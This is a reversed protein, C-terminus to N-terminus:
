FYIFRSFVFVFITSLLTSLWLPATVAAAGRSTTRSTRESSPGTFSRQSADLLRCLMVSTQPGMHGTVQGPPGCAALGHARASASVAQGTRARERAGGGGRLVRGGRGQWDEDLHVGARSVSRCSVGCENSERRQVQLAGTPHFEVAREDHGRKIHPCVCGQNQAGSCCVLQGVWLARTPPWPLAGQPRSHLCGGPGRLLLSWLPLCAPGGLGGLLVSHLSARPHQGCPCPSLSRVPEALSPAAQM